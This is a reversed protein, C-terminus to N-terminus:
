TLPLERRKRLFIGREMVVRHGDVWQRSRWLQAARVAAPLLTLGWTLPALLVLVGPLVWALGHRRLEVVASASHRSRANNEM